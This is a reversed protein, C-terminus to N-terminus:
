SIDPNTTRGITEAHAKPDVAPAVFERTLHPIGWNLGSWILAIAAALGVWVWRLSIGKARHGADATGGGPMGVGASTDYCDAVAKDLRYTEVNLTVENGSSVPGPYTKATFKDDGRFRGHKEIRHNRCYTFDQALRAFNPDVLKVNQTIFWVEDNLKGHQSCYFDAHRPTGQWGRAPWITHCEDIFYAVGRFHAPQGDPGLLRNGVRFRPDEFLPGYDVHAGKKEDYDAPATLKYGGGRYLWFNRVEEDTLQTVRDIVHVNHGRADLLEQLLDFRLVMNTVVFRSTTTLQEIIHMMARLTKGNRPKGVLFHIM